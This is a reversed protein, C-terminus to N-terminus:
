ARRASANAASPRVASKALEVEFPRDGPARVDCEQESDGVLAAASTPQGLRYREVVPGNGQPRHRLADPVLGRDGMQLHVVFVTKTPNAPDQPVPM